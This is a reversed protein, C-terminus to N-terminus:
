SQDLSGNTNPSAFRRVLSSYAYKKLCLWRFTKPLEDPRNAAPRYKRGLINIWRRPRSNNYCRTRVASDAIINRRWCTAAIVACTRHSKVAAVTFVTLQPKAKPNNGKAKEKGRCSAEFFLLGNALQRGHTLLHRINWLIAYRRTYPTICRKSEGYGIDPKQVVM